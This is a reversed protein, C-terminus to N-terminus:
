ALEILVIDSHDQAREVVLERGDPALDFDRILFDAPLATLPREHGTDLNIQWLDKRRFDGRMVVLAREPGAFQVRRAGRPLTIDRLPADVGGVTVAALRFRTGIDPGSYVVLRSDPSWVPNLGFQEVLTLPPGALPLTVLRSTGDLVHRVPCRHRAGIGAHPMEGVFLRFAADPAADM